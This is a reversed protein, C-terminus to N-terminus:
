LPDRFRYISLTRLLHDKAAQGYFNILTMEELGATAVIITIYMLSTVWNMLGGGSILAMIIDFLIYTTYAPHALYRYPGTSCITTNKHAKSLPSMIAAIIAIYAVMAMNFYPWNTTQSLPWYCVFFRVVMFTLM